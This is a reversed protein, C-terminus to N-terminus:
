HIITADNKSPDKYLFFLGDYISRSLVSHHNLEPYGILQHEINKNELSSIIKAMDKNGKPTEHIEAKGYTQFIKIPTQLNKLKEFRSKEVIEYMNYSLAGSILIYDQFLEPRQQLTYFGFLGGYSHGLLGRRKSCNPYQSEIFGIIEEEFFDLFLDAGGTYEKKLAHSVVEFKYLKANKKHEEIYPLTTFPSPTLDMNRQKEWEEENNYSIGVFVIDEVYLAYELVSFSGITIPTLWYADLYYLTKYKKQSDYNRPFTVKLIYTEGKASVVQHKVTKYGLDTEQGYSAQIFFLLLIAVAILKQKVM